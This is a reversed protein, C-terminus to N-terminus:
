RVMELFRQELTQTAREIRGVRNGAALLAENLTASADAPADTVLSVLLCSAAEVALGVLFSRRPNLVSASKGADEKQNALTAFYKHRPGRKEM